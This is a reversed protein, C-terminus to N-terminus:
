GAAELRDTVNTAGEDANAVRRLGELDSVVICHRTLRIAGTKAIAQLCRSVHVRVTGIITALEEERVRRRDLEIGHDTRFGDGTALGYLVRALRTTADRVGLDTVLGILDAEERSIAEVLKLSLTPSRRACAIVTAVDVVCLKAMSMARGSVGHRRTTFAGALLLAEGRRQCLKVVQERGDPTACYCTVRGEVLFYLRDCPDDQAFILEGPGVAAIRSRGAIAAVVEPEIGSLVTLTTVFARPSPESM